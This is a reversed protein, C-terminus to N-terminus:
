VLTGILCWTIFKNNAKLGWIIIQLVPYRLNYGADIEHAKKPRIGQGYNNFYKLQLLLQNKLLYISTTPLEKVLESVEFKIKNEDNEDPLPISLAYCKLCWQDNCSMVYEECLQINMQELQQIQAEKILYIHSAIQYYTEVEDEYDFGALKITYEIYEAENM